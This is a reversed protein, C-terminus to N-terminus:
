DSVHDTVWPGIKAAIMNLISLHTENPVIEVHSKSIVGTARQAFAVIRDPYMVEDDSGIWLGFPSDIAAIERGPKQPNLALAMDVTNYQILGAGSQMVEQSYNFRLADTHAMLLGRTISNVVFPKINVSVFSSPGAMKLTDSKPGLDPSVLLYGAVGQHNPSSAYRIVLGAGSSHGGLFVPTTPYQKKANQILSTADTYIQQVSPTDGRNGGSLGHGRIDPLYTAINYHESLAEGIPPYGAGSNAGSGHYFIVIAVPNAPVYARYALRVGDTAALYQVHSTDITKKPIASTSIDSITSPGFRTPFVFVWVLFGFILAVFVIGSILFHRAVARKM